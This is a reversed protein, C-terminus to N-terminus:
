LQSEIPLWGLVAAAFRRWRGADPERELVRPPTHNRDLWRLEGDEDLVAQYSLGPAAMRRYEARLEAAIGADDFLLGMETNLYASRPDLNFSGIFGHAGDVVFAKTHLSAGSSGFVSAHVNEGPRARLEYLAVGGRLLPERYRAYGSHVTVVDNAALSNTVVGIHIGSRAQDAMRAGLVEGPVFYPSILLSERRAQSLRTALRTALWGARDDSKWKLAPDSIVQVRETWHPRLRSALYDQVRPDAAVRALYRRADANDLESLTRALLAQLEGPSREGLAAIPVAAASNWYRDFQTSAQKVVPGFVIADLDRFNSQASASFYEEGINRGGVVAVRGDAIWAKNHMRHNLSFARHLMELLRGIGDRNRFPNYVRLEINPHADMALMQADNGSANIDDLLMRVRVGREAAQWVERGLLRGALDDHWIYYQLDLSRGSQRASMARVAFAEVGDAVLLVGSKGPHRALLPELERDLPTQGSRPSLAHGPAGSAPPTLRHALLLGSGVLVLLAM